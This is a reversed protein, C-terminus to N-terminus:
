NLGAWNLAEEKELFSRFEIIRGDRFKLGDAIRADIWESKDKLRVNVHVLVVLKDKSTIFQEPSCSGEAWTDRGRKFNAELEALGRYIGESPSGQFEIRVIQPDFLKLYCGIDNCNIAQYLENAAKLNPSDM